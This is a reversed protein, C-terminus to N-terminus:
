WRRKLEEYSEEHSLEGSEVRKMVDHLIVLMAQRQTEPDQSIKMKKPDDIIFEFGTSKLLGELKQYSEVSDLLHQKDRQQALRERVLTPVKLLLPDQQVSGDDSVYVEPGLMAAVEDLLTRYFSENHAHQRAIEKWFDGKLVEPPDEQPKEQEAVYPSQLAQMLQMCSIVVDLFDNPLSTGLTDQLKQLDGRLEERLEHITATKMWSSGPHERELERLRDEVDQALYQVEQRIGKETSEQVLWLLKDVPVNIGGLIGAEEVEVVVTGDDCAGMHIENGEEARYAVFPAKLTKRM